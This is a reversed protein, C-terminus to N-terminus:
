KIIVKGYPLYNAFAVNCGNWSLEDRREFMLEPFSNEIMKKYTDDKMILFPNEGYKIKYNDVNYRLKELNVKPEEFISSEM